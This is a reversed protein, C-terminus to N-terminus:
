CLADVASAGQQMCQIWHTGITDLRATGAAPSPSGSLWPGHVMAHLMAHCSPGARSKGLPTSSIAPHVYPLHAPTDYFPGPAAERSPRAPWHASTEKKVREGSWQVSQACCQRSAASNTVADWAGGGSRLM